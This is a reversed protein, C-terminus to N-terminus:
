VGVMLSPPGVGGPMDDVDIFEPAQLGPAFFTVKRQGSVSAFLCVGTATADPFWSRMYNGAPDFLRDILISDIDNGPGVLGSTSWVLGDGDPGTPRRVTVAHTTFRHGEQAENGWVAPDGSLFDANAAFTPQSGPEMVVIGSDGNNAGVSGSDQVILYAVTGDYQLFNVLDGDVPVALTDPSGGLDDITGTPGIRYLHALGTVSDVDAFYAHGDGGYSFGSHDATIPTAVTFVTNTTINWVVLDSGDAFVVALPSYSVMCPVISPGGGSWSGAKQAILAGVTGDEYAYAALLASDLSIGIYSHTDPAPTRIVSLANPLFSTSRGFGHIAM